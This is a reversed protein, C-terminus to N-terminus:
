DAAERDPLELGSLREIGGCPWLEPKPPQLIADPDREQWPWAQGLFGYDPDEDPVMVNQREALKEQFARRQEALKTVWEPPEASEAADPLKSIEDGEPPCPEASRLPEIPKDPNRRRLESDAAVALRRPGATIQEWARRDDMAESLNGEIRRYAEQLAGASAAMRTHREATEPDIAAQAEAQSRIALQRAEEAALRVGRLQRGVHPPAWETEAKYTDRMHWLSAEPLARVDVTDTRTLAVFGAHWAARQEPSSGAPEPGIPDAQDEVGYLERYAGIASARQQWDLREGPEDPV